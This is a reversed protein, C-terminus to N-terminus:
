ASAIVECVRLAKESTRVAKGDRVIGELEEIYANMFAREPITILRDKAEFLIRIVKEKDSLDKYKENFEM